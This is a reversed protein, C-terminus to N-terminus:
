RSFNGNQIIRVNQVSDLRHQSKWIKERAEYIKYEAYKINATLLIFHLIMLIYMYKLEKNMGGKNQNLKKLMRQLKWMRTTYEIPKPFFSVNKEILDNMEQEIEEKSM